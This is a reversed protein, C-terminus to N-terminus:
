KIELTHQSLYEYLRVVRSVAPDCNQSEAKNNFYLLWAYSLGTAESVRQLTLYEPRAKMLEITRQLLKCHEIAMAIGKTILYKALLMAGTM